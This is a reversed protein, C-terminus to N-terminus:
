PVPDARSRRQCRRDVGVETLDILIGGHEVKGDELGLERLLAREKELVASDENRGVALERKKVRRPDPLGWAAEGKFRPVFEHVARFARRNQAGRFDRARSTIPGIPNERRQGIALERGDIMDLILNPTPLADSPDLADDFGPGRVIHNSELPVNKSSAGVGAEDGGTHDSLIVEIGIRASHVGYQPPAPISIVQVIEPDDGSSREAIFKPVSQPSRGVEGKGVAIPIEPGVEVV